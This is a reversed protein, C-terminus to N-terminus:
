VVLVNKFNIFNQCIIKTELNYGELIKQAQTAEESVKKIIEEEKLLKFRKLRFEEIGCRLTVDGGYISNNDM